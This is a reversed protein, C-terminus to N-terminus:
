YFLVAIMTTQRIEAPKMKKMIFRRSAAVASSVGAGVSSARSVTSSSAIQDECSIVYGPVARGM